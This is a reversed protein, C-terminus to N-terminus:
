QAHTAPAPAEADRHFAVIAGPRAASTIIADRQQPHGTRDGVEIPQFREGLTVSRLQFPM